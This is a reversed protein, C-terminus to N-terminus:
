LIGGSRTSYGLIVFLVSLITIMLIHLALPKISRKPILFFRAHIALMLTFIILLYKLLLHKTYHRSFDFSLIDPSYITTMYIGTAILILLSPIGIKEYRSEFSEIVSFDNKKWAAPLFAMTLVLHGGTWITASLIHLIIILRM